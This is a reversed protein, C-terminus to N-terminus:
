EKVILELVKDIKEFQGMSAEVVEKVIQSRSKKITDKVKTIDKKQVVKEINSKFTKLIEDKKLNIEDNSHPSSLTIALLNIPSTTDLNSFNSSNEEFYNEILYPLVVGICIGAPLDCKKELINGLSKMTSFKLNSAIVNSIVEGNILNFLSKKKLNLNIISLATHAYINGFPNSNFIIFEIAIALAILSSSISYNSSFIARKDIVIINPIFYNSDFSVNQFSLFSSPEEEKLSGTPIFVFPKMKRHLNIDKNFNRYDLYALSLNLMKAFHITKSCGVGIISDRNFNKFIDRAEEVTSFSDNEQAFFLSLNLPSDQLYKVIKKDKKNIIIIPNQAGVMELESAINELAKNGSVIKAPFIFNSLM